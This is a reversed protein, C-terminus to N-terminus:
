MKYERKKKNQDMKKNETGAKAKVTKRKVIPPSSMERKRKREVGGKLKAVLRQASKALLDAVIDKVKTEPQKTEIEALIHARTSLNAECHGLV